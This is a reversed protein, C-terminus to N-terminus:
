KIKNEIGYLEIKYKALEQKRNIDVTEVPQLVGIPFTLHLLYITFNISLPQLIMYALSGLQDIQSVSHVIVWFAYQTMILNSRSQALPYQTVCNAAMKETVCPKATGSCYLIIVWGSCYGKALDIKM